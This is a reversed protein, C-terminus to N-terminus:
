AQIFKYFLVTPHLVGEPSAAYGPIEGARQWRLHAYVREAASGRLTDLVLLSIGSQAASAEVTALLSSAIRRGRRTGHVFLKQLDARHRGNEKMCPSLQVAGVVCDDEEAVWLRLSAGLSAMVERWYQLAREQSLPALFGVSAGGHVSDTLLECLGPLLSPEDATVERISPTEM